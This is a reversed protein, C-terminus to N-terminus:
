QFKEIRAITEATSQHLHTQLGLARAAAINGPHDDIYLCEPHALDNNELIHHFASADPKWNGTEGSFYAYDFVDTFFSFKKRNNEATERSVNSLVFLKPSPRRKKLRKLANILEKNERAGSIGWELLVGNVDFIIAQIM